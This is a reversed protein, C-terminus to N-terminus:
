GRECKRGTTGSNERRFWRYHDSVASVALSSPNKIYPSPHPVPSLSTPAPGKMYQAELNVSQLFAARKEQDVLRAAGKNAREVYEEAATSQGMKWLVEAIALQGTARQSPDSVSMLMREAEAANEYLVCAELLPFPFRSSRGFARGADELYGARAYLHGAWEAPISRDEFLRINASAIEAERIISRIRPYLDRPQTGPRQM